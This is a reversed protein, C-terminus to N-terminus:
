KNTQEDMDGGHENTQEFTNNIACQMIGCHLSKQLKGEIELGYLYEGLDVQFVKKKRKSKGSTRPLIIGRFFTILKGQKQFVPESFAESQMSGRRPRILQHFTGSGGNPFRNRTFSPSIEVLECPLLGSELGNKPRWWFSNEQMPSEAISVM